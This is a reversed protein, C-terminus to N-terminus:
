GLNHCVKGGSRLQNEGFEEQGRLNLSVAM